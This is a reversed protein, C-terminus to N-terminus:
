ILVAPKFAATAIRVAQEAASRPSRRGSVLDGVAYLGPISTEQEASCWLRNREDRALPLDCTVFPESGISGSRARRGQPKVTSKGSAKRGARSVSSTRTVKQDPSGTRGAAWVLADASLTQGNDLLVCVRGSANVEATLVDHRLHSFRGIPPQPLEAPALADLLTVRAGCAALLQATLLGSRGAGAILISGPLQTWNAIEDSRLLRRGDCEIRTPAAVRTGMALVLSRTQLLETQGASQVLVRAASEVLCHGTRLECGSKELLAQWVSQERDMIAAIWRRVTQWKSERRGNTALPAESLLMLRDLLEQVIQQQEQVTLAAYREAIDASATVPSILAVRRNLRRAALATQIGAPDRGLILHDYIM